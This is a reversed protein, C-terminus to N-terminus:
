NLVIQVSDNAPVTVSSSLKGKEARITVIQGQAVCSKFSFLGNTDTKTAQSCKPLIVDADAIGKQRGDIVEGRITVSPPPELKIVMSPFYNRDLSITSSGVLFSEPYNAYITVKGDGPKSQPPIDIEWGSETEKKEGGSPFNIEVNKKLPQNDPGIVVLRIHYVGRMALLTTATVPAIGLVILGAALLWAVPKNKSKAAVYLAGGLLAAAFVSATIPNTIRSAIELMTESM